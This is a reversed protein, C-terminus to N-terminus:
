TGGIIEDEGEGYFEQEEYKDAYVTSKLTNQESYSTGKSAYKDSYVEWTYYGNYYMDPVNYPLDLNFSRAAM